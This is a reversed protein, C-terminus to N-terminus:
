YLWIIEVSIGIDATGIFIGIILILTGRTFYSTLFLLQSRRVLSVVYWFHILLVGTLMGISCTCSTYM